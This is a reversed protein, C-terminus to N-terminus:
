KFDLNDSNGILKIRIEGYNQPIEGLFYCFGIWINRIKIIQNFIM